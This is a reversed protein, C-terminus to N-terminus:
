PDGVQRSPQSGTLGKAPSAPLGERALRDFHPTLCPGGAALAQANTHDSMLVVVNPRRAM